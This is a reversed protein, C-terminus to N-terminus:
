SLRPVLVSMMYVPLCAGASCRHSSWTDSDSTPDQQLYQPESILHSIVVPWPTDEMPSALHLIHKSTELLFCLVVNLMYLLVQRPRGGDHAAM